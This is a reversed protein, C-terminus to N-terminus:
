LFARSFVPEEEKTKIDINDSSQNAGSIPVMLLIITLISAIWIKKNM